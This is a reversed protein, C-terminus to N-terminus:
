LITGLLREFGVFSSLATNVAVLCWFTWFWLNSVALWWCTITSLTIWWGLCAICTVRTSREIENNINRTLGNSRNDIYGKNQYFSSLFHEKEKWQASLWDSITKDSSTDIQAIDYCNIKFVIEEPLDGALLGNEDQCVNVPYAITADIVQKLDNHNQMSKILNSFGTTRPHLVHHYEPLDNKKAFNKSKMLSEPQLDTGEPFLLLQPNTGATKFYTMFSDIRGEDKEWNRTLFLFHAAQMAWGAGPAHRLMDKLSIKFRRLSGYRCQVSAYFLWDLRTRHNLVILSSVNPDIKSVDGIIKVKVGYVIEFMAMALGFWTCIISDVIFRASDLKLAFVTVFLPSFM